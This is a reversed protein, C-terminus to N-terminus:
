AVPESELEWALRGARLEALLWQRPPHEDRATETQIYAEAEADDLAAAQSPGAGYPMGAPDIISWVPSEIDGLTSVWGEPRGTTTHQSALEYTLTEGSIARDRLIELAESEVAAGRVNTRAVAQLWAHFRARAEPTFRIM